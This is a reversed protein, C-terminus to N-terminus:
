SRVRRYCLLGGRLFFCAPARAASSRVRRFPLYGAAQLFCASAISLEARSSLRLIGAAKAFCASARRLEARSSFAVMGGGAFFCAPARILQVRRFPLYGAACFFFHLHEAQRKARSSLVPIMLVHAWWYGILRFVIVHLYFFPPM